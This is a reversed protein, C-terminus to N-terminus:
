TGLIKRYAALTGEVMAEATFNSLARQRAGQVLKARLEGDNLALVIKRAIDEPSRNEALLGTQADIVLEPIGGARTAVVPVGALQADIISSCLGELHSTMVFLDAAGLLKAVDERHGLFRLNGESLGLDRAQQVLRSRLEGDGVILFLANPIERIVEPVADILFRHGKHDALSAVDVVIRVDSPVGLEAEISERASQPIELPEVGSHVLHIREEEVGAQVLVGKIAESIAIYADPGKVYKWRNLAYKGPTFDVRRTVVFKPPDKMIKKALVGLTHAHSAHMGVIAPRRGKLFWALRSAAIPCFAFPLSRRIVEIGAESLMDGLLSGRRTVLAVPHGRAALGRCLLEVQRQGGRWGTEIDIQVSPIKEM